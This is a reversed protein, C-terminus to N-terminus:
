PLLCCVFLCLYGPVTVIGRDMKGLLIFVLFDKIEEFLSLVQIQEGNQPGSNAFLIYVFIFMHFHLFSIERQTLALLLYIAQCAVTCLSASNLSGASCATRALYGPVQDM